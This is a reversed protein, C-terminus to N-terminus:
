QKKGLIIMVGEFKLSQPHLTLTTGFEQCFLDVTSSELTWSQMEYVLDINCSWSCSDPLRSLIM